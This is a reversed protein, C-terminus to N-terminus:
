VQIRIINAEHIHMICVHIMLVAQQLSGRRWNHDTTLQPYNSELGCIIIRNTITKTRNHLLSYDYADTTEANHEDVMWGHHLERQLRRCSKRPPIQFIIKLCTENWDISACLEQLFYELEFWIGNQTLLSYDCWKVNVTAVSRWRNPVEHWYLIYLVFCECKDSGVMSTACLSSHRHIFYQLVPDVANLM